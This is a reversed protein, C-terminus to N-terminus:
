RAAYRDPPTWWAAECRPWCCTEGLLNYLMHWDCIGRGCLACHHEVEFGCRCARTVLEPAVVKRRVLYRKRGVRKWLPPRRPSKSM